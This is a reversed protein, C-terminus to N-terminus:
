PEMYIRCFKYATTKIINHAGINANIANFSPGMSISETRGKSSPARVSQPLSPPARFLERSLTKLVVSAAIQKVKKISDM